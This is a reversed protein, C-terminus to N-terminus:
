QDFIGANEKQHKCPLRRKRDMGRCSASISGGYRLTCKRLMWARMRRFEEEMEFGEWEDKRPYREEKYSVVSGQRMRYVMM